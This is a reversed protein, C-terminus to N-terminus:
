LRLLSQHEGQAPALVSSTPLAIAAARGATAAECPHQKAALRRPNETTRSTAIYKVIGGYIQATIYQAAAANSGAFIQADLSLLVSPFVAM